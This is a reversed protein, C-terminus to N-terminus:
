MTDIDLHKVPESGAFDIYRLGDPTVEFTVTKVTKLHQKDDDSSPGSLHCWFHDRHKM